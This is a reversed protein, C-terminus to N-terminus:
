NIPYVDKQKSLVDLLELQNKNFNKAAAIIKIQQPTFHMIMLWRRVNHTVALLLAGAQRYPSDAPNQGVANRKNSRNLLL